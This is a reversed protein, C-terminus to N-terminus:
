LRRRAKKPPPHASERERERMIRQKLFNHIYARSTYPKNADDNEENKLYSRKM